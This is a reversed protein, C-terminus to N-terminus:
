LCVIDETDVTRLYQIVEPLEYQTVSLEMYETIFGDSALALTRSTAEVTFIDHDLFCM